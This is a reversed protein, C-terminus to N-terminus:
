DVKGDSAFEYKRLHEPIKFREGYLKKTAPFGMYYYTDFIEGNGLARPDKQKELEDQMTAALDKKIGAFRRMMLSTTFVILTLPGPEM